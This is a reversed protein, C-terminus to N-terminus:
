FNLLEEGKKIHRWCSLVAESCGEWKRELLHFFMHSVRKGLFVEANDRFDVDLRCQLPLEVHRVRWVLYKARAIWLKCVICQILIRIGSECQGAVDDQMFLVFAYCSDRCHQRGDCELGEFSEMHLLTCAFGFFGQLINKVIDAMQMWMM